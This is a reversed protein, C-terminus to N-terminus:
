PVVGQQLRAAVVLETEDLGYREIAARIGDISPVIASRMTRFFRDFFYFGIGFNKDMFGRSNVSRHHIDHMRRAKLFVIKLLSSADDLFGRHADQRAPLQVDPHALRAPHLAGADPLALPVGLLAMIGLLDFPHNGFAGAM